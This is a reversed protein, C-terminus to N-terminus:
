NASPWPVEKQSLPSVDQVKSIMNVQSLILGKRDSPFCERNLRGQRKLEQSIKLTAESVTGTFSDIHEYYPETNGRWLTIIWKRGDQKSMDAGYSITVSTKRVAM